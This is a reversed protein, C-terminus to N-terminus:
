QESQVLLNFVKVLPDHGGRLLMVHPHPHHPPDLLANLDSIKCHKPDPDILIQISKAGQIRIVPDTNM